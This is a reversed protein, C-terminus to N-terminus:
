SNGWKVTIWLDSMRNDDMFLSFKGTPNPLPVKVLKGAKLDGFNKDSTLTDENAADNNNGRLTITNKESRAFLKLENVVNLSGKSWFPYHEERLPLSLEAFPNNNDIQVSSFKEWENPFEHRVSFLRTTGIAASDDILTKLNKMARKRLLEEGERSTYRIHIIVDTITDYNFQRVEGSRGPLSLQWESIVGSYEFPLKREDRMNLEFMGSDNQASSTVISQMSGFHVDFRDDNDGNTGYEGDSM